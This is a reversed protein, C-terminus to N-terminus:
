EPYQGQDAATPFRSENIDFKNLVADSVDIHAANAFSLLYIMVDALEDAVATRNEAGKVYEISEKTSMWQFHELLEAVEIAMSEALNKPSHYRGWNRRDVFAGARERLLAVTTTDDM